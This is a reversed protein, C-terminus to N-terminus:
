GTGTVRGFGHGIGLSREAGRGNKLGGLMQV